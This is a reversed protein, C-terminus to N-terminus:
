ADIKKEVQLTIRRMTFTFDFREREETLTDVVKGEHESVEPAPWPLTQEVTAVQAGTM